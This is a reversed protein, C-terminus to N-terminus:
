SEHHNGQMDDITCRAGLAGTSALQMVYKLDPALRGEVIGYGSTGGIAENKASEDALPNLIVSGTLPKCAHSGSYSFINVLITIPTM